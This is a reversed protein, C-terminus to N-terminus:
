SDFLTPCDKNNACEQVVKIIGGRIGQELLLYMKFDTM